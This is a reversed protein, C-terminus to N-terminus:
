SELKELEKVEDDSMVGRGDMFTSLNYKERIAKIRAEKQQYEQKLKSERERERQIVKVLRVSM